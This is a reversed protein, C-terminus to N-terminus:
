HMNISITNRFRQYLEEPIEHSFSLMGSNDIWIECEVIEHQRCLSAVDNLLKNTVKGKLARAQGDRVSIAQNSFLRSIMKM